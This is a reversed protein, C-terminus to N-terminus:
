CADTVLLRALERVSGVRELRDTMEQLRRAV